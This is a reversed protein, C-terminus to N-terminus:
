FHRRLFGLTLVHPGHSYSYLSRGQRPLLPRERQQEPQNQCRCGLAWELLLTIVQCHKMLAGDLHVWMETGPM